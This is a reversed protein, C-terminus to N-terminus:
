KAGHCAWWYYAAMEVDAPTWPEADVSVRGSRKAMEVDAPTWAKKQGTAACCYRRSQANLEAAIHGLLPLYTDFYESQNRSLGSKTYIALRSAKHAGTSWERQFETAYAGDNVLLSNFFYSAHRDVAAGTKPSCFRYIKSAIVLGIGPLDCLAAIGSRTKGSVLDAIAHQMAAKGDPSAGTIKGIAPQNNGAWISVQGAIACASAPALDTLLVRVKAELDVIRRQSSAAGTGHPWDYGQRAAVLLNALAPSLKLAGAAGTL